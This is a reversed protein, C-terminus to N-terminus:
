LPAIRSRVEPVVRDLFYGWSSLISHSVVELGENEQAVPRAVM